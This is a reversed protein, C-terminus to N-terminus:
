RCALAAVWYQVGFPDGSYLMRASWSGHELLSGLQRLQCTGSALLAAGLGADLARLATGDCGSLAKEVRDDFEPARDDAGGPSTARRRASGNAMLLVADGPGAPASAVEARHGAETLLMEAVPRAWPDGPDALLVLREPAGSVLLAVAEQCASRVAAVPDTLSAHEPLLAPVPPVVVVRSSMHSTLRSSM